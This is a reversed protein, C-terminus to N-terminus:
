KSKSPKPLGTKPVMKFTEFKGIEELFLEEIFDAVNLKISFHGIATKKHDARCLFNVKKASLRSRREQFVYFPRDGTM